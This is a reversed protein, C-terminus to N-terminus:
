RGVYLIPVTILVPKMPTNNANAIFFNESM